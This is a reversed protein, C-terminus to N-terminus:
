DIYFDKNKKPKAEDIHKKMPPWFSTSFYTMGFTWFVQKRLGIKHQRDFLQWKQHKSKLGSFGREKKSFSKREIVSPHYNM